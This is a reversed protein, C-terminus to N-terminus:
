FCSGQSDYDIQVLSNYGVDCLDFERIKGNKLLIFVAYDFSTDVYMNQKECLLKSTSMLVVVDIKKFNLLMSDIKLFENLDLGVRLDGVMFNESCVKMHELEYCLGETDAIFCMANDGHTLYASIPLDDHFQADYSSYFSAIDEKTQFKTKFENMRIFKPDVVFVITDNINLCLHIYQGDLVCTNVDLSNFVNKGVFLTPNSYKDYKYNKITDAVSMQSDININSCGILMNIAVFTM